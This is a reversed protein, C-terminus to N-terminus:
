TQLHPAVYLAKPQELLELLELLEAKAETAGEQRYVIVQKNSQTFHTIIKGCLDYM